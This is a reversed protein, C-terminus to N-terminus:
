YNAIAEGGNPSVLAELISKSGDPMLATVGYTLFVVHGDAFLFNAGGQHMSTVTRAPCRSVLSGPGFVAPNPCPSGDVDTTPFATSSRVTVITDPQAGTGAINARSGDPFPIHEGIMATNSTGDGIQAISVCSDATGGRRFEKDGNPYTTAPIITKGNGIVGRHSGAPQTGDMLAVYFSKGAEGAMPHSPCQYISFVRRTDLAINTGTEVGLSKQEIYPMITALWSGYLVLYPTGGAPTKEWADWTAPFFGNVDHYGHMALGIQKLNNTCKIRAAAERVKQVAPLLLGILVAIIAIVVLLEILTFASRRSPRSGTM